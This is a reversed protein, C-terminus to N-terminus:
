FKIELIMKSTPIPIKLFDAKKSREDFNYAYVVIPGRHEFNSRIPFIAAEKFLKTNQLAKMLIKHEPFEESKPMEREVVVYGTRYENLIKIIDDPSKILVSQGADGYPVRIAFQREARL